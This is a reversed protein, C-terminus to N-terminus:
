YFILPSHHDCSIPAILVVFIFYFYFTRIAQQERSNKKYIITTHEVYRTTLIILMQSISIKLSIQINYLTCVYIFMVLSKMIHVPKM